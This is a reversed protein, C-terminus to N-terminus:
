HCRLDCGPPYGPDLVFVAYYSGLPNRVGWMALSQYDGPLGEDTASGKDFFALQVAVREGSVLITVQTDRYFREVEQRTTTVLRLEGAFFDCHNGNGWLAVERRAAVPGTGPPHRIAQVALALRWLNWDNRFADGLFPVLVLAVLVVVGLLIQRLCGALSPQGSSQDSSNTANM